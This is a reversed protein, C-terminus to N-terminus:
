GASRRWKDNLRPAFVNHDVVPATTPRGFADARAQVIPSAKSAHKVDGEFRARVYTERQSAEISDVKFDPDLKQVVALRLEHDSKGDLKEAEGLVPRVKEVLSSREAVRADIRAPALEAELEKVRKEASDARAAESTTKKEAEEARKIAAALESAAKADRRECAQSWAASGVEYEIGDIRQTPKMSDVRVELERARSPARGPTRLDDADTQMVAVDEAAGTGDLRLSAEAGARAAGRPLLAIHNYVRNRQVADYRRGEFTGPTPDILLRYGASLEALEGRDVRGIADLEQIALDAIVNKGDFRPEGSAHGVADERFTAPTVMRTGGGPHAVTVPADRLSALSDLRGAEEAPLYEVFTTGDARRYELLGARAVVGEVRVGVATKTAKALRGVDVRVAPRWHAPTTSADFRNESVVAFM